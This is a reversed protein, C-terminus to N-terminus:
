RQKLIARMTFQSIILNAHAFLFFRRIREHPGSANTVPSPPSAISREQHVHHRYSRRGCLCNCSPLRLLIWRLVTRYHLHRLPAIAQGLTNAMNLIGLDKGAEQPNPLVDVNLAQDVSMYIGFGIGALAAYAYMGAASRILWPTAIAAAMVLTSIVVPLKRTKLKDSLPGASLSLILSMVMTITSMTAMVGTAAKTEMGMYRELIYLLYGNVMYYGLILMLRGVLALWFDRAGKTPFRFQRAVTSWKFPKVDYSPQERPIILVTLVGTVIWLITGVIFGLRMNGVFWNGVIVGLSMGVIQGVGYFASMTGRPSEPVRDSLIAVCPAIMMNLAIQMLSWCLVIVVTNTAISAGYYGIAAFPGGIILYPTRRGLKSRTADSVAGFILNAFMAFIVGISSMSSLISEGKGPILQDFRIPLLVSLGIAFAVCWILSFFIFGIMFRASEVKTLPRGTDPADNPSLTTTAAGPQETTQSM